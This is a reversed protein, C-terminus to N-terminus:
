KKSILSLTDLWVEPRRVVVVGRVSDGVEIGHLINTDKVVFPMTMAKMFNPIDGHAITVQNSSPDLAVVRGTFEHSRADSQQAENKKGCGSILALALLVFLLPFSQLFCRKIMSDGQEQSSHKLSKRQTRRRTIARGVLGIAGVVAVDYLRMM